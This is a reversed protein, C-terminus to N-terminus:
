LIGSCVLTAPQVIVLRVRNQKADPGPLLQGIRITERKLGLLKVDLTGELHFPKEAM